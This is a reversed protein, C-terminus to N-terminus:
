KNICKSVKWIEVVSVFGEAWGHFDFCGAFFGVRLVVWSAGKQSFCCGNRRSVFFGEYLFGNGLGKLAGGVQGIKKGGSGDERKLKKGWNEGILAVAVEDAAVEGGGENGDTAEGTKKLTESITESVGLPIDTVSEGSEGAEPNDVAGHLQRRLRRGLEPQSKNVEQM